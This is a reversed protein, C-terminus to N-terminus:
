ASLATSATFYDNYTTGTSDIVIDWFENKAAEPYSYEMTGRYRSLMLQYMNISLKQDGISMMTKGSRGCSGLATVLMMLALLIALARIPTKKM